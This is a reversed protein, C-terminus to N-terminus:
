PGAFAQDVRAEHWRFHMSPRLELRVDEGGSLVHYTLHVTNQQHPMLLRKELTVGDFEYRWIPLGDEVRFEKLGSPAHFETIGATHETATLRCRRSDPWVLEEALHSLMVTRGLPAPLAATLLAHYRRTIVGAISGSAYGGLGNTVLWERDLLQQVPDRDAVAELRRIHTM